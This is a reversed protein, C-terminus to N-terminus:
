GKQHHMKPFRQMGGSLQVWSQADDCYIEMTPKLWSTEDLSGAPIITINPLAEPEIVATSGCNPCFRNVVQQGSDGITTYTRQAGELSVAARPAAVTIRFASGTQKQCTKCHCLASFLPEADVTYRLKGCSCGGTMPIM